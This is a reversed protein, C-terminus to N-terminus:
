RQNGEKGQGMTAWGSAAARNNQRTPEHWLATGVCLDNYCVFRRLLIFFKDLKLFCTNKKLFWLIDPFRARKYFLQFTHLILGSGTVAHYPLSKFKRSMM